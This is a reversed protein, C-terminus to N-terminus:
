VCVTDPGRESEAGSRAARAHERESASGQESERGEGEVEGAVGGGGGGSVGGASFARRIGHLVYGYEKSSERWTQVLKWKRATRVVVLSLRLRVRVRM